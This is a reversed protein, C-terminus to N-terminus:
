PRVAVRRASLVGHWPSGAWETLGPELLLSVKRRGFEESYFSGGHPMQWEDELGINMGRWHTSWRAM